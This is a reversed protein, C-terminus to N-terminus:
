LGTNRCCGIKYGVIGNTDKGCCLEVEDLHGLPGWKSGLPNCFSTLKKKCFDNLFYEDVTFLIM